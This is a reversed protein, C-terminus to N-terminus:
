RGAQSAQGVLSSSVRCVARPYQDAKRRRRASFYLGGRVKSSTEVQFINFVTSSLCQKYIIIKVPQHTHLQFEWRRRLGHESKEALNCTFRFPNKASIHASTLQRKQHIPRSLWESRHICQARSGLCNLHINRYLTCMHTTIHNWRKKEVIRAALKPRNAVPWVIIIFYEVHQILLARITDERKRM